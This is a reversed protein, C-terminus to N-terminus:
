KISKKNVFTVFFTLSPLVVIVISLAFYAFINGLIDGATGWLNARVSMYATILLELFSELCLGFIEGIMKFISFKKLSKKFRKFKFVRVIIWLILIYLIKSACFLLYITFTSM